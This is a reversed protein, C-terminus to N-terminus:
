KLLRQEVAKAWGSRDHNHTGAKAPVVSYIDGSRAKMRVSASRMATVAANTTDADMM